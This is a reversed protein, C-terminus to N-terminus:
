RHNFPNPSKVRFVNVMNLIRLYASTDFPKLLTIKFKAFNSIIRDGNDDKVVGYLSGTRLDLETGLIVSSQTDTSVTVTPNYAINHNDGVLLSTAQFVKPVSGKNTSVEIDFSGFQLNDFWNLYASPNSPFMDYMKGWESVPRPCIVSVDWNFYRKPIFDAKSTFMNYKESWIMTQPTVSTKTIYVSGKNYSTGLVVDYNQTIDTWGLFYTRMNNEDSLIKVGDYSYRCFKKNTPDLWYLVDNGNRNKAVLVASKVKSGYSGVKVQQQEYVGGTGIYVQTSDANTSVNSQYPLVSVADEQVAIMKDTVDKLAVISGFKADLDKYSLPLIKRYFDYLGNETRQESYVIRTPFTSATKINEDFPTPYNITNVADYAGVTNFQEQFLPTGIETYPQLYRVINAFGKLTQTTQESDPNNYNLDTNIRSQTYYTIATSYYSNPIGVSGLRQSSYCQKQIAKVLYTDGGYIPINTITDPTETTIEVFTGTYILNYNNINTDPQEIAVNPDQAWLQVLYAGTDANKSVANDDYVRQETSIAIGEAQQGAFDAYNLSLQFYTGAGSKLNTKSRTNFPVYESDVINITRCDSMFCSLYEAFDSYKQGDIYRSYNYPTLSGFCRMKTPLSFEKKNLSVEPSDFVGYMRTNNSNNVQNNYCLPQSLGYPLGTLFGVTYLDGGNWFDPLSYLGTSLVNPASDARWFSIGKVTDRIDKINLSQIIFNYNWVDGGYDQYIPHSSFDAQNAFSDLITQRGIFIPDTIYGNKLHLRAYLPYIENLMYGVKNACFEPLMYGAVRTDNFTTLSLANILVVSFDCQVVGNPTYNYIGMDFVFYQAATLTVTVTKQVSVTVTSSTSANVTNTYNYIIGSPLAINFYIDADTDVFPASSYPNIRFTTTFTISYTGSASATFTRTSPNYQGAVNTSANSTFIDNNRRIDGITQINSAGGITGQNGIQFRNSSINIGEVFSKYTTDTAAVEIGAYNIRNKKIEQSTASLYVDEVQLLDGIAIQQTDIENGYHTFTTSNTTVNKRGIIYADTAVVDSGSTSSYQVAAIEVFDFANPNIGEILLTNSKSSGDGSIGGQVSIWSNSKNNQSSYVPVNGSGLSWETTNRTANLGFRVFYRYGGLSLAGGTQAQASFNIRGVNNILQNSSQTDITNLNIVGDGSISPNIYKVCCDETLLSPAYIVRPREGKYAYNIGYLGGSLVSVGMDIVEAPNLRLTNTRLLRTYTPVGSARKLVGVETGYSAIGDNDTINSILFLKDQIEYSQLPQVERITSFADVITDTRTIVGDIKFVLEFKVPIGGKNITLLVTNTDVVIETSNYGRALLEANLQPLFFISATADFSFNFSVNDIRFYFWYGHSTGFQCVFREKQETVQVKPITLLLNSGAIPEASLMRGGSDSVFEANNADTITQNDVMRPDTDHNLGKVFLHQERDLAM